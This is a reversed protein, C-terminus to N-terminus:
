KGETTFEDQAAVIEVRPGVRRLSGREVLVKIRSLVIALRKRMLKAIEAGSEVGARVHTLIDADLACTTEERTSYRVTETELDFVLPVTEETWRGQFNLSSNGEPRRSLEVNQDTAGGIGFSGAYRNGTRVSHHLVLVGGAAAEGLARFRGMLDFWEASEFTEPAEGFLYPIASSLSDVVLLSPRVERVIAELEAFKRPREAPALLQEMCAAHRHARRVYDGLNEEFSLWLVSGGAKTIAAAEATAV